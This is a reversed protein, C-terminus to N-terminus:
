EKKPIEFDKIVQSKNTKFQEGQHSAQWKKFTEGWNGSEKTTKTIVKNNNYKFGEMTINEITVSYTDSHNTVATISPGDMFKNDPWLKLDDYYEEPIFNFTNKKVQATKGFVAHINKISSRSDFYGPTQDPAGKKVGGMGVTVAFECSIAKVGDVTVLGNKASHPGM